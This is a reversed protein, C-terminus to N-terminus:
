PHLKICLVLDEVFDEVKDMVYIYECFITKSNLKRCCVLVLKWLIKELAVIQGVTCRQDIGLRQRECRVAIQVNGLAIRLADIADSLHRGVSLNRGDGSFIRFAVAKIRPTCAKFIILYVISSCPQSEGLEVIM